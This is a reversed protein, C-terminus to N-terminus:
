PRPSCAAVYLRICALRRLYVHVNCVPVLSCAPKNGSQVRARAPPSFLNGGRSAGPSAAARTAAGRTVAAHPNSPPAELPVEHHMCKRMMEYMDAEQGTCLQMQQKGHPFLEKARTTDFFEWLKRETEEDPPQRLAALHGSEPKDALGYCNSLLNQYEAWKLPHCTQLHARLKDSRFSNHWDHCINNPKRVKNDSERAFSICFM